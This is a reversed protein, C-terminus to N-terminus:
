FKQQAKSSSLYLSFHVCLGRAEQGYLNILAITRLPHAPRLYVLLGIVVKIQEGIDLATVAEVVTLEARSQSPAAAGAGSPDCWVCGAM